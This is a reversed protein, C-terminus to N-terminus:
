PSRDPTPETTFATTDPDPMGSTDLCFDSPGLVITGRLVYTLDTADWVADSTRISM